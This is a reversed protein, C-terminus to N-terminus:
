SCWRLIYSQFQPWLLFSFLALRFHLYKARQSQQLSSVLSNTSRPVAIHIYQFVYLQWKSSLSNVTTPNLSIHFPLSNFAVSMKWQVLDFRTQWKILQYKDLFSLFLLFFFKHHNRQCIHFLSKRETWGFYGCSDECSMSSDSAM